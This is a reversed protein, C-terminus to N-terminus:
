CPSLCQPRPLADAAAAGRTRDIAASLAAVIENGRGPKEVWPVGELGALGEQRHGSFVVFPVCRTKLERVFEASSGDKLTLDLLVADPRDSDLVSLAERRTAIPGVVRFGEDSLLDAVALGIVSEDEVVLICKATSLFSGAMATQGADCM